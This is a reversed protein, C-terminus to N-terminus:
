YLTKVIINGKKYAWVIHHVNQTAENYENQKTTM